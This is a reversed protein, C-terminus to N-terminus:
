HRVRGRRPRSCRLRLVFLFASSLVSERLLLGTGAEARGPGMRHGEEGCFLPVPQLQKLETKMVAVVSDAENLTDVGKSYRALQSGIEQRREALLSAFLSLLELFSRPTM